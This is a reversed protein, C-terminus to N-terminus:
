NEILLRCLPLIGAIEQGIQKSSLGLFIPLHLIRLGKRQNCLVKRFSIGTASAM